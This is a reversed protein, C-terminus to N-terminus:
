CPHDNNTALASPYRPRNRPTSVKAQVEPVVYRKCPLPFSCALVLYCEFSTYYTTLHATTSSRM